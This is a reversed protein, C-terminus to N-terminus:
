MAPFDDTWDNPYIGLDYLVQRVAAIPKFTIERETIERKMSKPKGSEDKPYSMVKAPVRDGFRKDKLDEPKILVADRGFGELDHIWVDDIDLLIERPQIADVFPYWTFSVYLERRFGPKEYVVRLKDNGRGQIHPLWERQRGLGLNFGNKYLKEINKQTYDGVFPDFAHGDRTTYLVEEAPERVIHAMNFWDKESTPYGHFATHYGSARPSIKDKEFLVIYKIKEDSDVLVDLTGASPPRLPNEANAIEVSSFWKSKKLENLASAVYQESQGFERPDTHIVPENPIVLEIERYPRRTQDKTLVENNSAHAVPIKCLYIESM